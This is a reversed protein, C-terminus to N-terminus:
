VKVIIPAFHSRKYYRPKILPWLERRGLLIIPLHLQRTDDILFYSLIVLCLDIGNHQALLLRQRRCLVLGFKAVRANWILFNVPM